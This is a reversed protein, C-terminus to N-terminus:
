REFRRDRWALAARLGGARLAELFARKDDSGEGELELDIALARELAEDFGAVSLSENIQQKTRRMVMPDVVAIRRAIEKAEALAAGAPVVRNILGIERAEDAGIRDLGLFAIEKAKKPGVLWPLLMVVVGAGFKVEPEGFIADAGAVTIDCAIAMECGGALAPGEVAAVTPKSLRWFRMVGEFDRRLVPAWAERGQPTDAAQDQLDFGASFAEGAGAVVLARIAEDAEVAACAAEIEELMQKSLANLRGPRNLTLLGLAGERELTVTEYAM